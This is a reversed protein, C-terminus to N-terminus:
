YMVSSTFQENVSVKKWLDTRSIECRTTATSPFSWLSNQFNLNPWFANHDNETVAVVRIECLPLEEGAVVRQPQNLVDVIRFKPNHSNQMQWLANQSNIESM